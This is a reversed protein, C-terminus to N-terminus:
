EFTMRGLLTAALPAWAIPLWRENRSIAHIIKPKLSDWLKGIHLISKNARAAASTPMEM